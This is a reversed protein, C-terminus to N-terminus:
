LIPIIPLPCLDKCLHHPLDYHPFGFGTTTVVHGFGDNRGWDDYNSKTYTKM